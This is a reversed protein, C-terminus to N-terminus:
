VGATPRICRLEHERLLDEIWIETAQKPSITNFVEFLRIIFCEHCLLDKSKRWCDVCLRKSRAIGEDEATHKGRNALSKATGLM